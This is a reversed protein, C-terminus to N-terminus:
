ENRWISQTVTYHWKMEAQLVGSLMEQLALRNSIFETLKQKDSFIKIVRENKFVLTALYLIRLQYNNKKKWSKLYTM